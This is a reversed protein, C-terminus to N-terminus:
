SEAPSDGVGKGLFALAIITIVFCAGIYCAALYPAGHMAAVLATAIFPTPGAVLAGNIENGFAVGTFRVEVPFLNAMVASGSAQTGGWIVGSAILLGLLVLPVSGTSIMWFYPVVVIVGFVMISTYLRKYGIRDGVKGWLPTVATGIITTTLTIALATTRPMGVTTTLYSLAWTLVVYVNANHGSRMAVALIARKPYHTLLQKIPVAHEMEEHHRRQAQAYDPTEELRRRIFIAVAFLVASALFPIRWAGGLLVSEPLATVALFAIMALAAGVGTATNILATYFGRRNAPTYEAALTLAGSLEAGAGFGQLCRLTVLLIPAWVGITQATPLLGMGTTAIGMLVITLMLAPKRGWRDGLHSIVIGGIPRVAFGVAFTAFALLVGTGSLSGPFFLPSIILGAATGYLLYDYWEIVTGVTAALIARRAAKSLHARPTNLTSSSM